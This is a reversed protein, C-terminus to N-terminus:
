NCRRALFELDLEKFITGNKWAEEESYVKEFDQWPVYAMAIKNDCVNEKGGPMCGTDAKQCDCERNMDTKERHEVCCNANTRPMRYNNSYM